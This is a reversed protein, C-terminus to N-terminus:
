LRPGQQSASRAALNEIGLAPSVQWLWTIPRSPPCHYLHNLPGGYRIAGTSTACAVHDQRRAYVRFHSAPTSVPSDQAQALFVTIEAQRDAWGRPLQMFCAGLPMYAPIAFEPAETCRRQRNRPQPVQLRARTRTWPPAYFECWWRWAPQSGPM